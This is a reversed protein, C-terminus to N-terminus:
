EDQEFAQKIIDAAYNIESFDKLQLRTNYNSLKGLNFYDKCMKKPDNVKDFDINVFINLADKLPQIEVFCNGESDFYRIYYKNFKRTIQNDLQSIKSEIEKLYKASNVGLRNEYKILSDDIIQEKGEKSEQYKKLIDDAINPYPWARCALASLEQARDEIQTLGWTKQEIIYRNLKLNSEKFGNEMELKKLFPSDSLKSNYGTLTLNGITHLYQQQIEIKDAGLDKEWEPSLNKNQPVIHEISKKNLSELSANKYNNFIELHTLIQKCKDTHFIDKKEFATRFEEDTPFKKGGQQLKFYAKISNIYDDEKIEKLISCFFKNNGATAANCIVQRFYYSLCLNIVECFEKQSIKENNYDDLVKMLLPYVVTMKADKIEAYLCNLEANDDQKNLRMDAYYKSFKLIDECLNETDLIHEKFYNKFEDYVSKENIYKKHKM